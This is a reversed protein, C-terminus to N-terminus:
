SNYDTILLCIFEFNVDILTHKLTYLEVEKKKLFFRIKMNEWSM